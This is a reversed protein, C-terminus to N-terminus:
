TVVVATAAAVSMASYRGASRSWASRRTDEHVVPPTAAPTTRVPASVATLAALKTPALEDLLAGEETGATGRSAAGTCPTGGARETMTRTTWTGAAAPREDKRAGAPM